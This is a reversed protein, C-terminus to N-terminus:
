SCSPEPWTVWSPMEMELHFHNSVTKSCALYSSIGVWIRAGLFSVIWILCFFIREWNNSFGLSKVIQTGESPTWWARAIVTECLNKCYTTRLLIQVSFLRGWGGDGWEGQGAWVDFGTEPHLFADEWHVKLLFLIGLYEVHKLSHLLGKVLLCSRYLWNQLCFFFCPRWGTM